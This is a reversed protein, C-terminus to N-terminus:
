ITLATGTTTMNSVGCVIAHQAEYTTVSTSINGWTNFMESCIISFSNASTVNVFTLQGRYGIVFKSALTIRLPIMSSDSQTDFKMPCETYIETFGFTALETGTTATNKKITFGYTSNSASTFHVQKCGTILLQAIEVEGNEAHLEITASDWLYSSIKENYIGTEIHVVIRLPDYPNLEITRLAKSITKFASVSSLGTNNDDGTSGNVYYNKSTFGINEPTLTVDTGVPSINNVSRVTGVDVNGQADPGTGNVSTVGAVTPLNVNGDGDPTTGNVSRVTEALTPAGIDSPTLTITGPTPISAPSKGNVSRVTGALIEGQENPSIGNVKKVISETTPVAGVDSATLTVNGDVPAINNVTGIAGLEAGSITVNGEADPEVGNISFVSKSFLVKLTKVIWDLNLNHFNTYPFNNFM